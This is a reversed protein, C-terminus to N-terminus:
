RGESGANLRASARWSERYITGTSELRGTYTEALGNKPNWVGVVGARGGEELSVLVLVERCM